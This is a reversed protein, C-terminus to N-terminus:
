RPPVGGETPVGGTPVGKGPRVTKKIGTKGPKPVTSGSSKPDFNDPTPVKGKGDVATPTTGGSSGTGSKEPNPNIINPNGSGGPSPDKPLTRGKGGASSPDVGPNVPMPQGMAANVAGWSHGLSVLKWWISNKDPAGSNSGSAGEPKPNGRVGVAANQSDDKWTDEKGAKKVIYGWVAGVFDKTVNRTPTKGATEYCQTGDYVLGTNKEGSVDSNTASQNDDTSQNADATQQDGESIRPDAQGPKRSSSPGSAPNGFFAEQMAQVATSITEQTPASTPLPGAGPEMGLLGFQKKLGPRWVTNMWSTVLRNDTNLADLGEEGGHIGPINIGNTRSSGGAQGTVGLISLSWEDPTMGRAKILREMETGYVYTLRSLDIIRIMLGLQNANYSFARPVTTPIGAKVQTKVYARGANQALASDTLLVGAFVLILYGAFTLQRYTSDNIRGFTSKM